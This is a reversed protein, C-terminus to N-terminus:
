LRSSWSSKAIRNVRQVPKKEARREEPTIMESNSELPLAWSPPNDWSMAGKAGYGLSECVALSYVWLDLAENRKRIQKWKGNIQKIEARLEEFYSAPLWDPVHFYGPGPTKRRLSSAVIDKYYDTAIIWVPMDPM